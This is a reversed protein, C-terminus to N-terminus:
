RLPGAGGTSVGPASGRRRGAGRHRRLPRPRGRPSRVPGAVAGWGVAAGRGRPREEGTTLSVQQDEGVAVDGVIASANPLTRPRGAPAPPLVVGVVVLPGHRRSRRRRTRGTAWPRRAPELRQRVPARPSTRGLGRGARRLALVPPAPGARPVTAGVALSNLPICEVKATAGSSGRGGAEDSSLGAHLQLGGRLHGLREGDGLARGLGGAVGLDGRRVEREGEGLLLARGGRGARRRRCRRRPDAAVARPTSAPIGRLVPLADRGGPQALGRERHELVGRGQHGGAAVGM